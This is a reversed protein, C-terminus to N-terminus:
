AREPVVTRALHNAIFHAVATADYPWAYVYPVAPHAARARAIAAPIDLEAHGGGQTLMPTVVVVRGPSAAAAEAFVAALDPACFENFGVLVRCGTAAELQRGLELSAAWFPDNKTTRPWEKVRRELEEARARMPPPVTAPDAHEVRAHLGMFEALEREPFDRPPAGHMALVILDNPM